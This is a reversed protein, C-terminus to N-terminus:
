ITSGVQGRFTRRAPLSYIMNSLLPILFCFMGSRELGLRSKGDFHSLLGGMALDNYRRRSSTEVLEFFYKSQIANLDAILEPTFGSPKDNEFFYVVGYEYAGVKVPIANKTDANAVTAVVWCVLVSSMYCFWRSIGQM